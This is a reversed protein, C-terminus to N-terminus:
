IFIATFSIELAKVYLSAFELYQYLSVHKDKLTHSVSIVHQFILIKILEHMLALLALVNRLM